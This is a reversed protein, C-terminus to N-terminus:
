PVYQETISQVYGDKTIIRFPPTKDTYTELYEVFEETNVSKTFENPNTGGGWNIISYQTQDTVQLYMPYSNPNYIYYGNPMDNPEINLKKLREMDDLTLWEVKDLHFSYTDINFSSIFGIYHSEPTKMFDEIKASYQPVLENISVNQGLENNIYDIAVQLPNLLSRDIGEDSQKQLEQYYDAIMIDTKPTDHYVNGNGDMWREVCWIGQDGQVIPQSLLLQATEGTSLPFKIVIHTGSYTEHPLVNIGELFVRLATEQGALISYDAKGSWSSGLYELKSGERSFILMPKGMSSDETIWGDTQNMGGAFRVKSIDDPKLRYELRWIELTNPLIEDFSAIKELKTIKSDIIKYGVESKEYTAIEEKVFKNAFDEVTLQEEQPNSILGLSITMVAIVAVIVVLFAPKKYNLINIIRGKTNNEGFALPCGSIIRRGTSLYLLSTSYDKKIGYGMQKIVSEDCSMEMDESMLFFAAWVLPNFWHICLVLFAFPKIIHDLRRIHTQEHKIIYTRENETLGIPLYIKPRIVGFIFPTKIGNLEYVNEFILKASKLKLYLKIATFVSYILLLTIGSIWVAEGLAIWQEMPNTNTGVVPATVMSNNVAQGVPALGIHIEPSQSYMTNTPVTQTTVPILSFISDFSFPSVLRFLVVSWLVYSFIKPVRKLILRSVIVFLIVYSATISMNLIQWFVSDM